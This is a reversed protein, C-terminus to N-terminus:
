RDAKHAALQGCAAQIERGKSWRVTVTMNATSLIRLFRDLTAEDVQRYPLEPTENYMILNVKCRLGRLLDVLRRADEPTDNIGQMLAYEITIRRRNELPYRRLADILTAINWKRNLPMLRERTEDTTANLSVALSVGLEMAGFKEIGPVVGATSVTVRRKGLGFGEPDTLLRIAAAVEKLNLMPEGMGMFVVHHFREGETLLASQAEIAQSVIEAATLNRQFGGWGTLCFKCDVACGVQSSICLSPQGAGEGDDDAERMAVCEIRKGDALKFLAKQTQGREGTVRVLEIPRLSTNEELWQRLGRPLNHMRDFDLAQRRHVWQHLQLARFKEFGAAMLMAQMQLLDMGRLPYPESQTPVPSEIEPNNM